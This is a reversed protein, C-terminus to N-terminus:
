ASVGEPANWYCWKLHQFDKEAMTFGHKLGCPECISAGDLCFELVDPRFCNGCLPCDLKISGANFQLTIKVAEVTTQSADSM